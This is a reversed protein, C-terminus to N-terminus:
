RRYKRTKNYVSEYIYLGDHKFPVRLNGSPVCLKASPVCLKASPVHMKASPVYLKASAGHM